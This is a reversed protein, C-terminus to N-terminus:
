NLILVTDAIDAIIRDLLFDSTVDCKVGTITKFQPDKWNILGQATVDYDSYDGNLEIREVDILDYDCECEHVIVWRMEDIQNPFLDRNEEVVVQGNIKFLLIVRKKM